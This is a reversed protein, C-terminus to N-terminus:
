PLGDELLHLYHKQLNATVKGIKGDNIPQGDISLVPVVGAESNTLFVEEAGMLREKTILQNEQEPEIITASCTPAVRTFILQRTIGKLLFNDAKRTWIVGDKVIFLNSHTAETVMGNRLYIADYAGKKQAAARDMINPLMNLSLIDCHPWRTDETTVCSVGQQAKEVAAVDLERAYVLTNPKMAMRGPITFDHAGAGRTVTLVLYGEKIDNEEAIIEHIETFEDPAIVARIGLLRMSRYLRDVHYSLAFPHGKHVRIWEYCGDGFQLGRDDANMVNAFSYYYQHNYFITAKDEAM